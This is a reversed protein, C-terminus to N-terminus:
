AKRGKSFEIFKNSFTKVKIFQKKQLAYPGYGWKRPYTERDMIVRKTRCVIGHTCTDIIASTMQAIVLAM